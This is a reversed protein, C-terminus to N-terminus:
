ARRPRRPSIRRAATRRGLRPREVSAPRGARRRRTPPRVLRMVLCRREDDGFRREDVPEFGLHRYFAIARTNTVYPDIVLWAADHHGFVRDLALRMAAGGLGRGRDDPAGIWIDLAWTGPAVDGWYHTEEEVADILQLFGVPRGNEEVILLERWPVNRALEVPWDYWDAGRGIASAVDPDEDWRRLWALDAVRMRRLSIVDRAYPSSGDRDFRARRTRGATVM